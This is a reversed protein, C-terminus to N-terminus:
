IVPLLLWPFDLVVKIVRGNRKLKGQALSLNRDNYSTELVVRFIPYQVIAVLKAKLFLSVFLLLGGLYCRLVQM